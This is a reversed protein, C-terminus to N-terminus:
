ATITLVGWRFARRTDRREAQALDYSDALTKLQDARPDAKTSGFSPFYGEAELLRQFNAFVTLQRTLADLQRRPLTIRSPPQFTHKHMIAEVQAANRARSKRPKM